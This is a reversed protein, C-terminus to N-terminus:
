RLKRTLSMYDRKPYYTLEDRLERSMSGYGDPNDFNELIAFLHEQFDDFNDNIWPAFHLAEGDDMYAALDHQDGSDFSDELSDKLSGMADLILDRHTNSM